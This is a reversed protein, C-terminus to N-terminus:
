EKDARAIRSMSRAHVGGLDDGGNKSEDCGCESEAQLLLVDRAADGHGFRDIRSYQESALFFTADLM